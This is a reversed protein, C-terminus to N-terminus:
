SGGAMAASQRLGRETFVRIVNRKYEASGRTDASPSAARAALEAAERFVEDTPEAGALVAEAETAELNNPGVATLGIGADGIRGNDMTVRV